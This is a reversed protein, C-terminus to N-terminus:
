SELSKIQNDLEVIKTYIEREFKDVDIQMRDKEEQAQRLQREIGKIYHERKEEKEEAEKM